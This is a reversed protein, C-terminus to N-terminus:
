AVKDLLPRLDPHIEPSAQKIFRLLAIENEHLDREHGIREALWKAEDGDIREARRAFAENSQNRAEWDADVNATTRYAELIGRAGGSVMRSLFGGVDVEADDFYTERRLAESRTPAEYGSLCMVFNAIAKVFLDNWSPDNKAGATKENITFLIEAESRTIAINGEGGYAYLVRRLLDVEAKTVRGTELAGGGALPGTGDVVAHMVQRLAFASLGEPSFKAAELVRVLLELEAPSAVMRDQSITSVLWDANEPSVYGAPKEQHVIYDTLAEVFFATWEPCQRECSTNIEFLVAAEDRSVIGDPYVERRLMTVDQPTVAGKSMIEAILASMILEGMGLGGDRRNSEPKDACGLM